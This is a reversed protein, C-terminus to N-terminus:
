LFSFTFVKGKKLVLSPPVLSVITTLAMQAPWERKWLTDKLGLQKIYNLSVIAAQWECQRSLLQSVLM